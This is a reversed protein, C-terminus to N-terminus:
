AFPYSNLMFVHRKTMPTREPQMPRAGVRYFIM